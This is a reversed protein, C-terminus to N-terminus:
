FYEKIRELSDHLPDVLDEFDVTSYEPWNKM